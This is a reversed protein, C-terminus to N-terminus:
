IWEKSQRVLLDRAKEPTAMIEKVVRETRIGQSGKVLIVDGKKIVNQLAKGAPVVTDFCFIAVKDFGAGRAGQAIEKALPGVCYLMDVKCREAIYQGLESHEKETYEGLELMDGLVAIKKADERIEFLSLVDLAARAALPSSNYSDDIILTRKVGPICRMRGKPQQYLRLARAAEELTFHYLLSVAIAPLVACVAQKGITHIEVDQKENKYQITCTSTIIEERGPIFVARQKLSAVSVDVDDRFGYTISPVALPGELPYVFPDDAAIVAWRDGGQLHRVIQRKEQILKEMSGFKELHAPGIATLVGIKCPALRTLYEIDGPKDAGMELVLIQPYATDRVILSWAIKGFVFLWGFVSRGPSEIGIIALPVGIENNYNKETGRVTFRHRLVLIIAEKASTKGVSGTIGIVDPNYKKLVNRASWYLIKELISKM